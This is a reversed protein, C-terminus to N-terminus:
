DGVFEAGNLPLPKESHSFRTFIGDEVFPHFRRPQIREHLVYGCGCIDFPDKQTDSNGQSNKSYCIGSILVCQGLHVGPFLTSRPGSDFGDTLIERVWSSPKQQFAARQREQYAQTLATM